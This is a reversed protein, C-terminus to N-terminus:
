TTDSSTASQAAATSSPKKLDGQQDLHAADVEKDEEEDEEIAVISSEMTMQQIEDSEFLHKDSMHIYARRMGDTQLKRLNEFAHFTFRAAFGALNLAYCVTAATVLVRLGKYMAGSVAADISEDFKKLALKEELSAGTIMTRYYGSERSLLPIREPPCNAGLSRQATWKKVLGIMEPSSSMAEQMIFLAMTVDEYESDGPTRKATSKERWEKYMAYADAFTEIKTGNQEILKSFWPELAAM